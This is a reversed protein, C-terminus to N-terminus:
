ARPEMGGSTKLVACDDGPGLVVSADQRLEPLLKELIKLENLAM